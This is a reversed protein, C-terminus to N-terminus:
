VADEVAKVIRLLRAAIEEDAHGIAEVLARTEKAYLRLFGEETERITVYFFLDILNDERDLLKIVQAAHSARALRINSLRKREARNGGETNTLEVVIRVVEPSFERELHEVTTDTDELVDHLYAAAIWTASSEPHLAVMGAVRGPHVIYDRGDNKRKQGVHAKSAFHAAHTIM